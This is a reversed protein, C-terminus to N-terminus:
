DDRAYIQGISVSPLNTMGPRGAVEPLNPDLSMWRLHNIERSNEPYSELWYFDTTDFFVKMVVIIKLLRVFVWEKITTDYTTDEEMRGM